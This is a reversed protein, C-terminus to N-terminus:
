LFNLNLFKRFVFSMACDLLLFRWTIPIALYQLLFRSTIPFRWTFLLRWTIPITLSYSADLLLLTLSYTDDTITSNLLLTLCYYLLNIPITDKRPLRLVKQLELTVKRPLRLAQHVELAVKGPLLLVQHLELTVKRPVLLTTFTLHWKARCAFYKTLNSPSVQQEACQLHRKM